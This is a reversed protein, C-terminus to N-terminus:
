SRPFNLLLGIVLAVRIKEGTKALFRIDDNYHTKFLFQM